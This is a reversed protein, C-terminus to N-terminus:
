HDIEICLNCKMFVLKFYRIGQIPNQLKSASCLAIASKLNIQAIVQHILRQFEKTWGRMVNKMTTMMMVIPQMPMHLAKLNLYEKDM